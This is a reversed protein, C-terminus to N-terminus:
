RRDAPYDLSLVNDIRAALRSGENRAAIVISVSPLKFDSTQLRFPRPRLRAWLRLLLPYGVYVYAVLITSCWFLVRMATVDAVGGRARTTRHRARREARRAQVC